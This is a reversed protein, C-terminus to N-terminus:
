RLKDFLATDHIVEFEKYRGTNSVDSIDLIKIASTYDELNTNNKLDPHKLISRKFLKDFLATDHIVEFEKYRGKTDRRKPLTADIRIYRDGNNYSRWAERTNLEDFQKRTIKNPNDKKLRLRDKLREMWLDFKDRVVYKDM